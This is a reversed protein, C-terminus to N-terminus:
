KKCFSRLYGVLGKIDADSMGDGFPPMAANLNAAPGGEKIVKFITDDTVKSMKACDTFDGVKASLKSASPGDGKGTQGHCDACSDTYTAKADASAPAARLVLALTAAAPLAVLMWGMSRVKTGSYNPM